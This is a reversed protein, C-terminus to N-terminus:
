RRGDNLVPYQGIKVSKGGKTKNVKSRKKSAPTVIGEGSINISNTTVTLGELTETAKSEITERFLKLRGDVDVEVMANDVSTTITAMIDEESPSSVDEVENSSALLEAEFRAILQDITLVFQKKFDQTLGSVTENLFGSLPRSKAWESLKENFAILESDFLNNAKTVFDEYLPSTVSNFTDTIDDISLDSM